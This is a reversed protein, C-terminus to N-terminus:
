QVFKQVVQSLAIQVAKLPRVARQWVGFANPHTARGQGSRKRIASFDVDNEHVGLAREVVLGTVSVTGDNKREAGEHARDLDVVDFVVNFASM